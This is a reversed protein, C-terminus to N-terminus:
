ETQIPKVARHRDYLRNAISEIGITTLMKERTLPACHEGYLDLSGNAVRIGPAEVDMQMTYDLFGTKTRLPEVSSNVIDTPKFYFRGRVEKINGNVDNRKEPKVEVVSGNYKGIEGKRMFDSIDPNSESFYNYNGIISAVLDLHTGYWVGLDVVKTQLGTKVHHFRKKLFNGERMDQNLMLYVAAFQTVQEPNMNESM